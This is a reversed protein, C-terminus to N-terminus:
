VQPWDRVRLHEPLNSLDKIAKGRRGLGLLAADLQKVFPAVGAARCQAVASEAWAIPMPRAGAGSETGILLWNVGEAGLVPSFDVAELAPEYSVFIPREFLALALRARELRARDEVTVGIWANPAHVLEEPMRSFLGKPRKTLLLWLLSPTDAILAWLKERQADLAVCLDSDIPVEGVDAMSACFVAHREGLLDAHAEWKLPQAWHKPEFFRREPGDWVDQGVRKAFAAAYCNNCGPSVRECGWWPNFTYGPMLSGAPMAVPDLPNARSRQRHTWEISTEAM